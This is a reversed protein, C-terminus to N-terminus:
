GYNKGDLGGMISYFDFNTEYESEVGEFNM